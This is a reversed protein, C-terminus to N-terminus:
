HRGIRRGGTVPPAAAAQLLQAMGSFVAALRSATELPAAIVLGGSDTRQVTEKGQFRREVGEEDPELTDTAFTLRNDTSSIFFV